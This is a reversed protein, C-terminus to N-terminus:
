LWSNSVDFNILFFITPIELKDLSLNNVSNFFNKLDSMKILSELSLNEWSNNSIIKGCSLFKLINKFGFLKVFVLISFDSKINKSEVKIISLVSLASYKM